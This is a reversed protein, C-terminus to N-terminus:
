IGNAKLKGLLEDGVLTRVASMQQQIQDSPMLGRTVAFTVVQLQALYQMINWKQRLDVVTQQIEVPLDTYEVEVSVYHMEYQVSGPFKM